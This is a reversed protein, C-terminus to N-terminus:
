RAVELRASVLSWPRRRDRRRGQSVLAGRWDRARDATGHPLLCVAHRGAGATAAAALPHLRGPWTPVRAAGAGAADLEAAPSVLGLDAPHSQAQVSASPGPWGPM